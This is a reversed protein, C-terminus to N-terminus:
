LLSDTPSEPDESIEVIVAGLALCAVVLPFREPDVVPLQLPKASQLPKCCKKLLRHSELSAARNKTKEGQLHQLLSLQQV